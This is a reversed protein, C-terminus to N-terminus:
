YTKLFVRFQDSGKIVNNKGNFNSRFLICLTLYGSGSADDLYFDDKYKFNKNPLLKFDNVLSVGFIIQKNLM